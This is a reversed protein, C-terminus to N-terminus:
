ECPRVALASFSLKVHLARPDIMKSILVVLASNDARISM